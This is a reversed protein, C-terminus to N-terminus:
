GRIYMCINEVTSKLASLYSLIVILNKRRGRETNKRRVGKVKELIWWRVIWLSLLFYM